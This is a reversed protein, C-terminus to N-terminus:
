SAARTVEVMGFGVELDLNLTGGPTVGAPPALTRTVDQDPGGQPPGGPLRVEGLGAAAHVTVTVNRPVVVELRGAGLEASTRATGGSPVAVASLDLTADGNGLDYHPRVATISAPRVETQAWDTRIERPIVSAAALLLATVVTMFITGFGTRGLFASVVLGLGFVALACALGIQLSTGLPQAAWSASTGIGGALLALLLVLGGISRPGRPQPPPVSTPGTGTGSSTGTGTGTAWPDRDRDHGARQPPEAVVTDPPGWLYGVPVPGTSGDKVIPDRWWSPADPPPPAQTEPPAEAAAHAAGAGPAPEQGPAGTQRRRQSWVAAGTVACAVLIAFGITDGNAGAMTLFLGCGVLAMLVATLSAGDVRGSLLRRGENEDEGEAPILLWAFGYFILGLGGAVSLVGTVVRFVVPDLDFHRGLGGCVGAVVRQRPTRRLPGPATPADDQAGPAEPPPPTPTTSSM